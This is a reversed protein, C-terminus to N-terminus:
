LNRLLSTLTDPIGMQRLDRWLKNHDVYDFAKAYNFFCLYISKISNGQKILSGSFMPLKIEQDEREREREKKKKKRFGAQVDPLEQNACNQLRAHFIKLM